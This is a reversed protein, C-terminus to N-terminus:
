SGVRGFVVPKSDVFVTGGVYFRQFTAQDVTFRGEDSVLGAFYRGSRRPSMM